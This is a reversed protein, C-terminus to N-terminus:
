SKTKHLYSFPLLHFESTATLLSFCPSTDKISWTHCDSAAALHNPVLPGLVSKTHIQSPFSSDLKQPWLLHLLVNENETANHVASQFRTLSFRPNCPRTRWHFSTVSLRIEVLGQRYWRWGGAGMCIGCGLVVNQLESVRSQGAGPWALLRILFHIKGQWYVQNGTAWCSSHTGDNFICQGLSIYSSSSNTKEASACHPPCALDKFVAWSTQPGQM